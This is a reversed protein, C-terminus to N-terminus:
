TVILKKDEIRPVRYVPTEDLEEVQSELKLAGEILLAKEEELTEVRKTLIKIQETKVKDREQLEKVEETKIKDHEQLEKVEIKLARVMDLATGTLIGGTEADVKKRQSRWQLWGPLNVLVAIILTVIGSIIVTMLESSM